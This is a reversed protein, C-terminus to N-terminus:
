IMGCSSYIIDWISYFVTEWVVYLTQWSKAYWTDILCCSQDALCNLLDPWVAYPTEWVAYFNTGLEVYNPDGLCSNLTELILM